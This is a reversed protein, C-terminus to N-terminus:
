IIIFKYIYLSKICLNIIELQIKAYFNFHHILLFIKQTTKSESPSLVLIQHRPWGIRLPPQM